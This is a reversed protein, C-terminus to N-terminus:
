RDRRLALRVLEELAQATEEPLRAQSLAKAAAEAREGIAAEVGAVAGTARLLTRLEEVDGDTLQANGYLHLIRGAQRPDARNLAEAVLVTPKGEKLDDIDPKGTIAPEGFTGLLDDRLQYGDGVAVGFETLAALLEPGADALHAGMRLAPMVGYLGAKYRVVDLCHQRDYARESQLLLELSQGYAADTQMRDHVTKLARVRAPSDGARDLLMGAWGACLDSLLVATSIGFDRASGHWGQRQHHAALQYHMAPRGRRTASHDMIDDQLLWFAHSLELSAAAFLVSEVPGDGGAGRWGWYCFLSRVRKGGDLVFTRLCDLAHAMGPYPLQSTQEDLFEALLATVRDRVEAHDLANEGRDPSDPVTGPAARGSGAATPNTTM